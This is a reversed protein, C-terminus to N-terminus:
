LAVEKLNATSKLLESNQGPLQFYQTKYWDDNIIRTVPILQDFGSTKLLKRKM